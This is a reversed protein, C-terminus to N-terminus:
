CVSTRYANTKERTYASIVNLRYQSWRICIGKQRSAQSLRNVQLQAIGTVDTHFPSNALVHNTLHRHHIEQSQQQQQQQQLITSIAPSSTAEKRRKPRRGLRSAAACSLLLFEGHSLYRNCDIKLCLLFNLLFSCPM